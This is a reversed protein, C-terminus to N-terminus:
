HSLKWLAWWDGRLGEADGFNQSLFNELEVVSCLDLEWRTQIGQLYLSHRLLFVKYKNLPVLTLSLQLEVWSSFSIFGPAMTPFM